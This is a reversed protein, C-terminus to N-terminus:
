NQAHARRGPYLHVSRRGAPNDRTRTGQLGLGRSRTAGFFQSLCFFYVNAPPAPPRWSSALGRPPGGKFSRGKCSAKFRGRLPKEERPCGCLRSSTRTGDGPQERDFRLPGRDGRLPRSSPRGVSPKRAVPQGPPRHTDDHTPPKQETRPTATHNRDDTGGVRHATGKWRALVATWEPRPAVPGGCLGWSPLSAGKGKSGWVRGQRSGHGVSAGFLAEPSATGRLVGEGRAQTRFRPGRRARPAGAQDGCVRRARGNRSQTRSGEGEGPTRRPRRGHAALTHRASPLSGRVPAHGTDGKSVRM